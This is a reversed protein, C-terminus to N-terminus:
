LEFQSTLKFISLIAISNLYRSKTTIDRDNRHCLVPRHDCHQKAFSDQLCEAWKMRRGNWNRGRKLRRNTRVEM